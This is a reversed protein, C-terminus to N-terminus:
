ARILHAGSRRVQAGGRELWACWETKGPRAGRSGHAGSRRVQTGGERSLVGRKMQASTHQECACVSRHAAHVTTHMNALLLSDRRQPHTSARPLDSEALSTLSGAGSAYMSPLLSGGRSFLSPRESGMLTRSSARTALPSESQPDSPAVTHTPMYVHISTKATTHPTPARREAQQRAASRVRYGSRAKGESDIRMSCACGHM